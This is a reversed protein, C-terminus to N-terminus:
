KSWICHSLINLDSLVCVVLIIANIEESFLSAEYGATALVITVIMLSIM